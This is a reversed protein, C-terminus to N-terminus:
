ISKRTQKKETNGQLLIPRKRLSTMNAFGLQNRIEVYFKLFCAFRKSFYNMCKKALRSLFHFLTQSKTVKVILLINFDTITLGLYHFM